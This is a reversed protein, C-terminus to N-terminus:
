LVAAPQEPLAADLLQSLAEPLEPPRAAALQQRVVWARALQPRLAEPQAVDSVEV